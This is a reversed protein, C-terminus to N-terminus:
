DKRKSMYNMILFPMVTCALVILGLLINFVLLLLGALFFMVALFMLAAAVKVPRDPDVKEVKLKYFDWNCDCESCYAEKPDAGGGILKEKITARTSGSLVTSAINSKTPEVDASSDMFTLDKNGCKPCKYVTIM